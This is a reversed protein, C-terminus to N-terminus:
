TSPGFLEMGTWFAMTAKIIATFDHAFSTVFQGSGDCAVNIAQALGARDHEVCKLASRERLCLDLLHQVRHSIGLGAQEVQGALEGTVVEVSLVRLMYSAANAITASM